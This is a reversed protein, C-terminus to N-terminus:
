SGDGRQNLLACIMRASDATQVLSLPSKVKFVEEDRGCWVCCGELDSSSSLSGERKIM